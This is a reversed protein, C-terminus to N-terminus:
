QEALRELLLHIAWNTGDGWDEVAARVEEEDALRDGDLVYFGVAKRVGLDGGAVVEPRALCRALLWEASWRGIGRLETLHDIVARDTMMGLDDLYGDAAAQAVGIIYEAKRTTFQLERLESPDASAMVKASPFIPITVGELEGQGGFRAVLRRRTTAAWTLNVQQASIASVLAEFPDAVLPPRYGPIRALQRAVAPVRAAVAEPRPLGDALRHRLDALAMDGAGDVLLEISEDALQRARYTTGQPTVRHYAGDVVVNVPDIGWRTYRAICALLDLPTDSQWRVTEMTRLLTRLM